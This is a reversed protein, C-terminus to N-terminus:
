LEASAYDKISQTDQGNLRALMANGITEMGQKYPKLEEDLVATRAEVHDRLEIYRRVLDADNM